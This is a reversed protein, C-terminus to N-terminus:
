SILIANNAFYNTLENTKDVRLRYKLKKGESVDKNSLKNNKLDLLIYERGDELMLGPNKLFCLNDKIDDIVSEYISGNEPKNGESLPSDLVRKCNQLYDFFLDLFKKLSKFDINLRHAADNRSQVMNHWSDYTNQGLQNSMKKKLSGEDKKKNEIKHITELAKSCNMVILSAISGAFAPNQTQQIKTRVYEEYLPFSQHLIKIIESKPASHKKLDYEDNWFRTEWWFKTENKEINIISGLFTKYLYRIEKTFCLTYILDVFQLYNEISATLKFADDLGEKIWFALAGSTITDKYSWIKNSATTILVPCMIKAENLKKLVQVGSIKTHDPENKEEQGKLRLDLILLDARHEKVKSIIQNAINEITYDAHPVITIFNEHEEGYIIQQFIASWGDEAQDDVFVIRPRYKQLAERKADLPMDSKTFLENSELEAIQVSIQEINQKFKEKESKILDILASYDEDELLKSELRQQKETLEQIKQRLQNSFNNVCSALKIHLDSKPGSEADELTKNQRDYNELEHTLNEIEDQNINLPKEKAGFKEKKRLLLQNLKENYQSKSAKKIYRAILGEYSNMERLAQSFVPAPKQMSDKEVTEELAQQVNWLQLVGWWNAVFHRNDPLEFEAKFFPKLDDPAKEKLLQEFPIKAFDFPLRYYTIGESFLILNKPDLEMLQERTLFSYVVCHNRFGHLRLFKLLKIGLNETRIYGSLIFNLNIVFISDESSYTEVIHSVLEELPKEYLEPTLTYVPISRAELTEIGSDRWKGENEIWVIRM